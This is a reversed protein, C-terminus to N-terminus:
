KIEKINIEITVIYTKGDITVIKKALYPFCEEIDWGFTKISEETMDVSDKAIEELYLKLEEMKKDERKERKHLVKTREEKQNYKLM